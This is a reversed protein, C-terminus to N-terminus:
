SHDRLQGRKAAEEIDKTAVKCSSRPLPHRPHSLHPPQRAGPLPHRPHSLHPPQQAQEVANATSVFIVGDNKIKQGNMILAGFLDDSSNFEVFAFGIAKGTSKDVPFSISAIDLGKFIKRLLAEELKVKISAVFAKFTPNKVKNALLHPNFLDLKKIKTKKKKTQAM